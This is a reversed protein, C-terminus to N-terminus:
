YKGGLKRHDWSATKEPTVKLIVRKAARALAEGRVQKPDGTNKSMSERILNAVQETDDIVECTGRIMVGRYEAYHNGTEIMLGVQPNRRANLVKQAKGYSTMYIAGDKAFFGMAVVHPFGDQDLTAFSAKPATRLFEAQEEPTMRIENRRSM